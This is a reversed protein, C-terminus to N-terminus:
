KKYTQNLFQDIIENRRELISKVFSHECIIDMTIVGLTDSIISKIQCGNAVFDYATINFKGGSQRSKDFLEFFYDEKQKDYEISITVDIHQSNKETFKSHKTNKELLSKAIVGFETGINEWESDSGSTNGIISFQISLDKATFNDDGIKLWKNFSSINM